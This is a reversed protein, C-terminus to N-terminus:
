MKLANHGVSGLKKKLSDKDNVDMEFRYLARLTTPEGLKFFLQHDMYTTM